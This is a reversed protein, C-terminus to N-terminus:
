KKGKAAIYVPDAEQLVRRLIKGVISKPLENVIEIVKPAKWSTINEHSWKLLEEPTVKGVFEPRLAVWAKVSEGLKPDPLGAVACELVAPHNGMLSEVEAPFVSHGAMKILQKKRDKITIRGYQDMYGLDGTLLWTRGKYQKLHDASQQPEKWYAKMVQPGSCCIEGINEPGIPLPGKSFDEGDFIMWDTSPAPVGIYGSEREGYFNNCSVMPSAETLGYGETIKAGTKEEYPKRVYDHLPGASSISLRLRGKLNFKALVEPPLEAIRQFLIEAGCYIFGNYDPITADM